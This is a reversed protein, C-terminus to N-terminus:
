SSVNPAMQPIQAPTNMLFPALASANTSPPNNTSKWTLERGGRRDWGSPTCQNSRQRSAKENRHM